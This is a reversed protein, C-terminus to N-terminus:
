MKWLVLDALAAGIPGGILPGAIYVWAGQMSASGWGAFLTILRPGLDRAPNIGAGTTAGLLAIMSGIASGVILPVASSAVSANSPHTASFIVFTLFATGFAEIFLAQVWGGVSPSLSYYDGFAVASKIGLDSGRLIGNKAEFEIIATHFLALNIIGAVMAGALQAVWYPILKSISFSDPRILAFALTVAPNLHGGSISATAYLALTAGLLWIVAAQWLGNMVGLYVTACLGGCGIQVLTCTGFFEAVLENKLPVPPKSGDDETQTIPIADYRAM